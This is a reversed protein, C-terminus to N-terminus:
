PMDPWDQLRNSELNQHFIKRHTIVTNISIYLKDAIEKNLAGEAILCLVEIERTSLEGKEPQLIKINKILKELKEKILSEDEWINLTQNQRHDTLNHDKTVVITKDRRPMFFEVNNSFVESTIIYGETKEEMKFYDELSSYSETIGDWIEHLYSKIGSNEITSFGVLVIKGHDKM